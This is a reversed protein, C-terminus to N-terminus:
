QLVYEPYTRHVIETLKKASLKNYYAINKMVAELVHLPLERHLQRLVKEAEGKGINTLGYIPMTVEEGNVEVLEERIEVLGQLVLLEADDLLEKSFPGYYYPKFDYYEEGPLHKRLDEQMLFILKQLKTKGRVTGATHL